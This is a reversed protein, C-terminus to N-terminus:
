FHLMPLSFFFCLKQLVTKEQEWILQCKLHRNWHGGRGFSLKSETFNLHFTMGAAATAVAANAAGGHLIHAEHQHPPRLPGRWGHSPVGDGASLDEAPDGGNRGQQGAFVIYLQFLKCLLQMYSIYPLIVWIEYLLLKLAGMLRELTVYTQDNLLCALNDDSIFYIEQSVFPYKIFPERTNQLPSPHIKVNNKLPAKISTWVPKQM